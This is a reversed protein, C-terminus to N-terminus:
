LKGKPLSFSFISGEGPHSKVILKSGHAEIIKKALALGLGVGGAKRTSSGDLQHFPEFIEDLRNQPIGIGYDQIAIIIEKDNDYLIAEVPSDEKSFKIANDILQHIVWNIKVKEAKAIVSKKGDQINLQFDRTPLSQRFSNIQNTLLLAIDISGSVVSIRDNEAMSFMILDEILQGLRNSSKKIIELVENQQDTIEGIDRNILLDLYGQLHTLPTRLEHSINSIFNSKIINLENIQNLAEQLQATREQVRMELKQNSQELSDRFRVLQDTIARDLTKQSIFNLGVLIKGLPIEEGQRNRISQIELASNLEEETLLHNGVLYEGIKPVLIEPSIQKIRANMLIGGDALGM